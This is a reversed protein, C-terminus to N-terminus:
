RGTTPRNTQAKEVDRREQSRSDAWEARTRCIRM